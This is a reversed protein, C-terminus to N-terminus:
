PKFGSALVFQGLVTVLLEREELSDPAVMHGTELFIGMMFPHGGWQFPFEALATIQDSRGIHGVLHVVVLGLVPGRVCRPTYGIWVIGYIQGDILRKLRFVNEVVFFALRALFSRVHEQFMRATPQTKEVM